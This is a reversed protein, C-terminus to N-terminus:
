LYLRNIKKEQEAQNPYLFTIAECHHGQSRAWFLAVASDIGGSVMVLTRNRKM